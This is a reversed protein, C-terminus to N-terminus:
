GGVPADVPKAVMVWQFGFLRPAISLLGHQARTALKYFTAEEGNKWVEDLPVGTSTIREVRFGAARMMDVATDKTLFQLHTRDFPGRDM